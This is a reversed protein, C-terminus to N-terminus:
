LLPEPRELLDLRDALPEFILTEVVVGLDGAVM